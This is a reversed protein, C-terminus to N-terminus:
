EDIKIAHTLECYYVLNTYKGCEECECVEYYYNDDKNYANTQMEWDLMSIKSSGCHACVKKTKSM